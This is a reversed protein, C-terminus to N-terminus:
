TTIVIYLNPWPSLLIVCTVGNLLHHSGKGFVQFYLAGSGVKPRLDVSRDVFNDLEAHQLGIRLQRLLVGLPFYM